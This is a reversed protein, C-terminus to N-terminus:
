PIVAATTIRALAELRKKIAALQTNLTVLRASADRPVRQDAGLTMNYLYEFQALLQPAQYRGEATELARVIDESERAMPAGRSQMQTRIDRARALTARAEEIGARVALEHKEQAVLMADTIGDQRVRPDAQVVLPQSLTDGDVILRVTYRGPAVMPGPGGPTTAHVLNWRFRNEGVSDTIATAAASGRRPARMGQETTTRAAAGATTFTRVVAGLANRIELVPANSPKSGLWYDIIASAGPYEPVGPGAPSASHRWRTAVRPTHLVAKKSTMADAYQQLPTVDDLIWFSRGMTSLVLDRRQVKIDTIPVVPLNRQMPMWSAGDNASVYFGFETGLYLLGQREPDERVVRTPTDDPVGNTGTTLRTWTRGYDTTRYTYPKFDGLLYRYVAIYATGKRHRSVDINQVRGGPPLDPPTVKTWSAGNNRTVHVPGDNAGTWIVGPEIPSERIAYLTSYFEEGTVDRTIPGGSVGQTEPTNATLDPSIREWTLGDDRSRHLFQSGYYVVGKTHPSVDLPAVRQFRYILDKPDNGYLSQAGVWSNQEQGTILNLRSWQGKCAGYVVNTNWPSPM